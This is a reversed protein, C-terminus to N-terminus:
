DSVLSAQPRYVTTQPRYVTTQPHYVTQRPHYVAGVFVIGLKDVPRARIEAGSACPAEEPMKDHTISPIQSLFSEPRRTKRKLLLSM